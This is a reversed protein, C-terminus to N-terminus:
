VSESIVAILDAKKEVGKIDIDMEKALARLEAVTMKDIEPTQDEPVKEKETEEPEKESEPEVPPTADPTSDIPAEAPKADEIVIAGSQRLSQLDADEVTFVTHAPYKVGNYKVENVFKVKAM